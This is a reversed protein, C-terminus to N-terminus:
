WFVSRGPLVIEVILFFFKLLFEVKRKNEGKKLRVLYGTQNLLVDFDFMM